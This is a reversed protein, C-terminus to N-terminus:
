LIDKIEMLDKVIHTERGTAVAVSYEPLFLISRVRANEACEIDISRDVVYYTRERDLGYKEVFYDIAASDPKRPFGDKGNIIEEFYDILGLRTLVDTTSDGRHTFVLNKINKGKLYELIEKAHKIPQIKAKERDGIESYRDKIQDYTLRYKGEMKTIFARVSYTIVERLIYEKDLEIGYEKYTKYLTAVIVEYSDLLTGDLDWIMTLSNREENM